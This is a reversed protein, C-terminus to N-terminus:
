IVEVPVSANPRLGLSSVKMAFLQNKENILEEVKYNLGAIEELLEAKEAEKKRSKVHRRIFQGIRIVILAIFAFNIIFVFIFCIWDLINFSNSAGVLLNFYDVIDYYLLNALANFLTKIFEWINTFFERLFTVYYRAFETM